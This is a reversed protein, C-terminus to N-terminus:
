SLGSVVWWTVAIFLIVVLGFGVIFLEGLLKDNETARILGKQYGM